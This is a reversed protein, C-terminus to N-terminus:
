THDGQFDQWCTQKLHWLLQLIEALFGEESLEFGITIDSMLISLPFIGQVPSLFGQVYVV